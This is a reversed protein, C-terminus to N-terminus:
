ICYLKETHWTLIFSTESRCRPNTPLHQWDCSCRHIEQARAKAGRGGATDEATCESPAPTGPSGEKLMEVSTPFHTGLFHSTFPVQLSGPAPETNENKARVPPTSISFISSRLILLTKQKPWFIFHPWFINCFHVVSFLVIDKSVQGRWQQM